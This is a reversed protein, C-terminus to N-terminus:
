NSFTMHCKSIEVQDVQVDLSMHGKCKVQSYYLKREFVCGWELGVGRGGPMITNNEALYFKM